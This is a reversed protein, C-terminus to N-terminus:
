NIKVARSKCGSCMYFSSKDIASGVGKLDLMLCTDSQNCHDAGMTHGLEHLVVKTLRESKKTKLTATSVVCNKGGVQGYGMITWDPFIRGNLNRKTSIVRDTILLRKGPKDVLMRNMFRLISDSQMKGSRPNIYESPIQLVGKRVVEADYYRRLAKDILVLDGEPVTPTRYLFVHLKRHGNSGSRKSKDNSKSAKDNSIQEMGGPDDSSCGFIVILSLSSIIKPLFTM